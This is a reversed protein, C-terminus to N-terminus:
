SKDQKEETKKEPIFVWIHDVRNLLLKTYGGPVGNNVATTTLPFYATKVTQEEENIAELILPGNFGSADQATVWNLIM